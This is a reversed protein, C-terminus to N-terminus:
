YQINNDVVKKSKEGFFLLLAGAILPTIAASLAAWGIGNRGYSKAALGVLICFLVFVLYYTM